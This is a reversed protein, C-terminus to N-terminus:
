TFVSESYEYEDAKLGKMKLLIVYDKANIYGDNNLDVYDLYSPDNKVASLAIRFLKVEEDNIVGNKNIDAGIVAISGCDVDASQVVVTIYRDFGFAYHVKLYYVGSELTLSFDGNEDTEAIKNDGNMIWARKAPSRGEAANVDEAIVVKGTVTQTTITQSGGAEDSYEYKSTHCRSCTYLAGGRVSATSQTEYVKNYDHGYADIHREELIESCYECVGLM